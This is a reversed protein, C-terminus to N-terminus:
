PEDGRFDYIGGSIKWDQKCSPCTIQGGTIALPSYGCELCKFFLFPDKPTLPSLDKGIVRARLFISPSFQGLAGTWQFVSDLGALIIPPITRKLLGIRFYSVTLVKEIRFGLSILEKYLTRPHFDFNLPAFEVSEPSFPNWHQLGLAFRLISKLNRKNAFELIFCAGPRMVNRIQGLAAPADAMHHLVRIMTAADFLGDVFPLRYIDAAVYIFRDSDGLLERAQRLQTRSYDLLVIREFGNYRLTNRGAGAGLELLLRGNKPLLRKIASSECRDEYERGGKEWFRTQYDSGEYDCVPPRPQKDPM